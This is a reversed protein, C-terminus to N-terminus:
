HVQDTAGPHGDTAAQELQALWQEAVKQHEPTKARLYALLERKAREKDGSRESLYAIALRARPISDCARELAGLAESPNKPQSLLAIGLYYHSLPDNGALRVAVRAVAEAELYRGLKLLALALNAHAEPAGPDLEVARQFYSRATEDAKGELYQAGLNNYADVFKPDLQISRALHEIAETSNRKKAAKMGKEFEKRANSPVKHSLRARSVTSASHNVGPSTAPLHISIRNTQERLSVFDHYLVTGGVTTVYLDYDGTAIGFFQFEGSVDIDARREISAHSSLVVTLGFTSADGTGVNGTLFVRANDSGSQANTCVPLGALLLCFCAGSYISKMGPQYALSGGDFFM